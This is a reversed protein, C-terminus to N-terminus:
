LDWFSGFIFGDEFGDDYTKKKKKGSKKRSKKKPENLGFLAFLFNLPLLIMWITLKISWVCLDFMLLMILEIM